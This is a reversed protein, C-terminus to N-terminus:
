EKEDSSIESKTQNEIKNSCDGAGPTTPDIVVGLTVLMALLTNFLNVEEDSIFINFEHLILLMASFLTVLFTKNRIRSKWDIKM